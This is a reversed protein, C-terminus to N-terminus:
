PNSITVEVTSQERGVIAAGMFTLIGVGGRRLNINLTELHQNNTEGKEHNAILHITMTVSAVQAFLSSLPDICSRQERKLGPSMLRFRANDVVM